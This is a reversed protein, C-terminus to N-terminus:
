TNEGAKKYYHAQTEFMRWYDKRLAILDKHTGEETIKGDRMFLVRQCFQTSSLRHSVFLSMTNEMLKAYSLYLKNEAIPDLAATPEDLILFQVGRKYLARALLLRQRQGGSFEVADKHVQKLLRSNTGEKLDSVFDWSGSQRLVRELRVKDQEDAPQMTINEGISLPLFHYDQFIAAMKLFREERKYDWLSKGNLLVEGTTPKYFGALIKVLTTKGAGNAGVLSVREGRKITLNINSLAPEVAGEYTYSVNRLELTEWTKPISETGDDETSQDAFDRYKQCLLCLQHLQNYQDVFGMIWGSFGTVIGFFFIFEAVTIQANLVAIILFAYAALERVVNVLSIGMGIAFFRTAAKQESKKFAALVRAMCYMLWDKAGFIRIDKAAVPDVAIRHLYEFRAFSDWRKTRAKWEVKRLLFKLLYEGTCTVFVIAILRWDLRGLIAIYTFIGFLNAAMSTLLQFSNRVGSWRFAFERASEWEKRTKSDELKAYDMYLLKEFSKIVFHTRLVMGAYYLKERLFPELWSFLAIMGSFVSVFIILRQITWSEEIARLMLAPILATLVPLFIVVPIRFFALPISGADFKRWQQLLFKTNDLVHAKDNKM